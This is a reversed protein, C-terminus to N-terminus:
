EAFFGPIQKINNRIGGLTTDCYFKETALNGWVTEPWCADGPSRGIIHLHLQPVMNGITAFNIKAVDFYHKILAAIAACDDIILERTKAPLDLLETEVTDPVLIFWPVAANRHLLLQGSALKGLLHCDALLQPHIIHNSM